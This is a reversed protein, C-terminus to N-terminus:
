LVCDRMNLNRWFHGYVSLLDTELPHKLAENYWSEHWQRAIKDAEVYDVERPPSSENLWCYIESQVSELSELLQARFDLNFLARRHISEQRHWYSAGVPAQEDTLFHYEQGFDFNVAKFLSMCPASSATFLYDDKGNGTLRVIMSACTQSPRKFSGAHLCVDHNDHQAFLDRARKHHRLSAVLDMLTTKTQLACHGLNEEGQMRREKAKGFFSMFWTDFSKAFNFTGKGNWHGQEIAFEQLGESCLDYDDTISLCNSIARYAVGEQSQLRKAVWHRGATELVWADRADAILFSNDYRFGKDRYGAPGGQGHKELLETIVKLAQEATGGRELGLRLLDMGLLSENERDVLKTFVAENGIAVGQDNVGMEAGWIWFPKSLIVAYRNPVQPIAQYTLRVLTASDEQAAPIRVVYQAESPERDSNKALWTVGDRIIVQTDCM